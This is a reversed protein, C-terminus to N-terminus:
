RGAHHTLKSSRTQSHGCCGIYHPPWRAPSRRPLRQFRCVRSTPPTLMRGKNMWPPLDVHGWGRGGSSIRAAIEHATRQIRDLANAVAQRVRRHQEQQQHQQDPCQGPRQGSHLELRQVRAGALRDPDDVLQGAFRQGREHGIQVPHEHGERRQAHHQGRHQTQAHGLVGAVDIGHQPPHQRDRRLLQQGRRQHRHRHEAMDRHIGAVHQHNRQAPHDEIGRPPM